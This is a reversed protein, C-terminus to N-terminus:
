PMSELIIMELSKNGIGMLGENYDKREKPFGTDSCQRQEQQWKFNM